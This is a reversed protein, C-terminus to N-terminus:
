CSLKFEEQANFRQEIEVARQEYGECGMLALAAIKGAEVGPQVYPDVQM